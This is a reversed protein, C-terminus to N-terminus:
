KGKAIICSYDSLQELNADKRPVLSGGRTKCLASARQLADYDAPGPDLQYSRNKAGDSASEGASACAACTLSLTAILLLRIM